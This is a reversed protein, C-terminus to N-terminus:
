SPKAKPSTTSWSQIVLKIFFQDKYNMTIRSPVDYRNLRTFSGYQIDWGAQTLRHLRHYHDLNIHSVTFNPDPMGLIWYRMSGLPLTWGLQQKILAEPSTAHYTGKNTQLTFQGPSSQITIAGMGLPGFLHLTSHDKNQQWQLSATVNQKPSRLAMAGNLHWTQLQQLQAQRTKWPLRTNHAQITTAQPMCGTSLLMLMMICALIPRKITLALIRPFDTCRLPLTLQNSRIMRM